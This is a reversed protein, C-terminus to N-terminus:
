SLGAGGGGSRRRSSWISGQALSQMVMMRERLIIITSYNNQPHTASLAKGTLRNDVNNNGWVCLRIFM